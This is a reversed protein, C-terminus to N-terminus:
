LIAFLDLLLNGALLATGVGIALLVLFPLQPTVWVRGVGKAQLESMQRVRLNRDEESTEVDIEERSKGGSLTPDRLWVFRDPLESVPIRFGVFGRPFTFEGRSANLLALAIPVALSVLAANVVVSISYPFVSLIPKAISPISLWPNPFFPLLIGATMLGKADAGGYLIRAEFLGRALLVTAYVAAAPALFGLATLPHGIAAVVLVSGVVLYLASEVSWAPIPTAKELSVDWDFLHELVLGSVMVWLVVAQWGQPIVVVLGAFAGFLVLLLWLRDSVERTRVDAVAAYAFGLVLVAIEVDRLVGTLAALAM